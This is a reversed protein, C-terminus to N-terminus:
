PRLGVPCFTDITWQCNPRSFERSLAGGGGGGGGRAECKAKGRGEKGMRTASIGASVM